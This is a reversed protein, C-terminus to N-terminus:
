IYLTNINDIYLSMFSDLKKYSISLWQSLYPCTCQVARSLQVAKAGCVNFLDCYYFNQRIMDRNHHSPKTINKVSKTRQQRRNRSLKKPRSLKDRNHGQLRKSM